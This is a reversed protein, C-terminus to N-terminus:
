QSAVTSALPAGCVTGTQPATPSSTRQKMNSGPVAFSRCRAALRATAHVGVRGPTSTTPPAAEVANMRRRVRRFHEGGESRLVGVRVGQGPQRITVGGGTLQKWDAPNVSAARVAIRVQGPGPMLNLPTQGGSSRLVGTLRLSCRGSRMRYAESCALGIVCCSRFHEVIVQDGVRDSDVLRVPPDNPVRMVDLEPDCHRDTASEDRCLM